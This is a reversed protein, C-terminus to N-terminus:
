HGSAHHLGWGSALLSAVLLGAAAMWVLPWVLANAGPLVVFDEPAPTISRTTPEPPLAGDAHGGSADHGHAAHAHDGGM